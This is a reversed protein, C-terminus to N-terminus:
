KQDFHNKVYEVLKPGELKDTAPNTRVYFTSNDLYCPSPTAKCEVMLVYKGDIQIADYEIFPYFEEGIREKILNKFKLLFADINKYFKAIEADVGSIIGDDNVGIFLIGGETNLFAVITKLVEIELYKEKKGTKSCLSLSGKFESIKSEGHRLVSRIKDIITLGGVAEVMDDLQSFISKSGVPNLALGREFLNITQKLDHLKRQTRVIQKQDEITPLAIPAQELEKKNLHAIFTGSILSELILRGIDSKFFAAVYENIAKDGLVIQFYNHHKINANSIKSIVLSTGIKPIYISNDKETLSGGQNLM